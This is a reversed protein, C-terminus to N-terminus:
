KKKAQAEKKLKAEKLLQNFNSLSKRKQYGCDTLYELAAKESNLANSNSLADVILERYDNIGSDLRVMAGYVDTSAFSAHLLKFRRSHSYLYSELIFSNWRYGINPFHLFLGVDKLPAYKEPCMTDLIDDIKEVDFPILDNRVFENENIRVMESLVTEWYIGINMDTSFQKLEDYQLTEHSRAFEAYVDKVAINQGIRTIVPGNFSFSERLLYGLCNRLGYRTFGETNLAVNPCKNEILEMLEADIIHSRYELENRILEVVQQLEEASIPLNPAYFYTKEAVKVLSPLGMISSRIKDYTIYWAENHIDDYTMPSHSAKLIRLVDGQTDASRFDRILYSNRRTLGSNSSSVLLASLAEQNYINLESGLRNAYRYYVAEVYVASAGSDFTSDIESLIESILTDQAKDQKPFIRRDRETGIKSLIGSIHEDTDEPATGYENTYYKKFRGRDIANNPRFGNESFYKELIVAYNKNAPSEEVPKPVPKVSPANVVSSPSASTSTYSYLKRESMRFAILKNFAAHFRNHQQENLAKFASDQMLLTKIRDLERLDTTVFLNQKTLNLLYARKSCQAVASVYGRATASSMGSKEMWSFFRARETRVASDEGANQNQVTEKTTYSELFDLFVDLVGSYKGKNVRDIDAFSRNSVLKEKIRMLEGVDTVTLIDSNYINLTQAAKTCKKLATLYQMATPIPISTIKAWEFFRTRIASIDTDTTQTEPVNREVIESKKNDTKKRPESQSVTDQIQPPATKVYQPKEDFFMQYYQIASKMRSLEKRYVYKFTSDTNITFEVNKLIKPDTTEFLNDKIIGHKLCYKEIDGYVIYIDSLQAPTLKGSLWKFYEDKVSKNEPLKRAEKLLREYTPRDFKYLNVVEQFLTPMSSKKLGHKGDTYIYEMVGMQMSIGNTNRFVDDIEIGKNVARKRLEESVAKVARLRPQEGNLVSLLGDFLILAEDRDWLIRLAM